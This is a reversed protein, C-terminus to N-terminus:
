KLEKEADPTTYFIESWELPKTGETALEKYSAYNRSKHLYARLNEGCKPNASTNSRVIKGMEIEVVRHTNIADLKAIVEGEPDVMGTYAVDWYPDLQCSAVHMGHDIARTRLKMEWQPRLTDGYLPYLVLEAGKAGLTAAVEPFYNDFCIMIGVRGIDLDFVPYSMGPVIGNKHENSTLNCKYYSGVENGERDLIYSCNHVGADDVCYDWPVVYAHYKRALAACRERWADAIEAILEKQEYFNEIERRAKVYQFAEPFFVLDAGDEFCATALEILADQRAAISGEMKNDVQVLGIKAM